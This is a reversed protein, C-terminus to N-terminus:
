QLIQLRLDEALGEPPRENSAYEISGYSSYLLETRIGKWYRPLATRRQM